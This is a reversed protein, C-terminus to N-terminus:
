WLAMLQEYVKRSESGSLLIESKCTVCADQSKVKRKREEAKNESKKGIKKEKTSCKTPKM